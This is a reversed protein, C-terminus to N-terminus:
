ERLQIFKARGQAKTLIDAVQDRTPVYQLQVAGLQVYDKIFHCRIDIHKSQDHFVPNEFLKICSQNDCYVRTAEMRKRFFSVLLKRLCIAECTATSAAMYEAEASSLAISKQKRNCWSIMGSGVTFCYRSTSKQDVLSSAWDPDTFGNLRVDEGQSYKLGYEVIGHVYRLIHRAVAWHVRKPEVMFETLTNNSFFIDPRTNILYMLSGILQKYLTPDVEKDGSADIKNWNTIMPTAMTRCDQMRFRKLIETAYRGQRLFIEWEKALSGVWARPAQKLGYLAKKLRCVHTRKEHTELGEPQEIYVEEIVRNLFTTKVDMQHIEWGM